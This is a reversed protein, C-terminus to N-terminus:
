TPARTAAAFDRAETGVLSAISQVGSTSVAVSLGDLIDDIVQPGRYVFSTYLQLLTAGAQIKALATASDEIGGCGILTLAGECRLYARALLQTSAPFLPRGSLGGTERSRPDRLKSPRAITTNSVILGDARRSTAVEVIDDLGRLDLDPAIKILVPRRPSVAERAEIVRAVLEDLANRRQLDRLGATNPSSVNITFWSAAAAFTKVGLVYDAIRDAADKNPGFNVGLIGSSARATLRALAAEFGDNNFGMRNVLAADAPLRFLRPKANGGQPLPTLTGVEVFSFGLALLAEPVEANKDFGAALGLPHAFSSGLADFALRYDPATTPSRPMFKLAAIAARHASEPPLRSLWPRALASLARIM